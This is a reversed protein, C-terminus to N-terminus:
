LVDSSLYFIHFGYTRGNLRKDRQGDVPTSQELADKAYCKGVYRNNGNYRM